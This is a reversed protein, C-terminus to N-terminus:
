RGPRWSGCVPVSFSGCSSLVSQRRHWPVPSATFPTFAGTMSMALCVGHGCDLMPARQTSHWMGSLRYMARSGRLSWEKLEGSGRRLTSSPMGFAQVM